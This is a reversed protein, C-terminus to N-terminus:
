DKREQEHERHGQEGQDGDHEAERQQTRVGVRGLQREAERLQRDREELLEETKSLREKLAQKEPDEELNEARELEQEAKATGEAVSNGAIQALYVKAELWAFVSRVAFIVFILGAPVSLRATLLTVRSDLVREIFGGSTPMEYPFVAVMYGLGAVLWVWWPLSTVAKLARDLLGGAARAGATTPEKTLSGPPERREPPGGNSDKETDEDTSM